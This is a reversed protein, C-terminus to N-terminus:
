RLGGGFRYAYSLMFSATRKNSLLGELILDLGVRSSGFNYSGGGGFTITQGTVSEGPVAFTSTSTGNSLVTTGGAGKITSQLYGPGFFWDWHTGVGSQLNQGVPLTLYLLTIKASDGSASRAMPTYGVQPSFYWDMSVRWDYKLNLPYSTTGLLSPVSNTSSTTKGLANQSYYGIGMYLSNEVFANAVSLGLFILFLFGRVM